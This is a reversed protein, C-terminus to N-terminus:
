HGPKPATGRFRLFLSPVRKAREDAVASTWAKLLGPNREHFDKVTDGVEFAVPKNIGKKGSLLQAFRGGPVPVRDGGFLAPTAGSVDVVGNLTYVDTRSESLAVIFDTGRAAAVGFKTLVIFRYGVTRPRAQDREAEDDAAEKSGGPVLVRIEGRTLLVSPIPDGGTMTDPELRVTFRSTGAALLQVGSEFVIRAEVDSELEVSDDWQFQFKGPLAKKIQWTKSKVALGNLGFVDLLLPPPVQSFARSPTSTALASLVLLTTLM